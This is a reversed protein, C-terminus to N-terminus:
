KRKPSRFFDEECTLHGLAQFLFRSSYIPRTILFRIFSRPFNETRTGLVFRYHDHRSQGGCWM